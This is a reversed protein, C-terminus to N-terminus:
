FDSPLPRTNTTEDIYDGGWGTPIKNPFIGTSAPMYSGAGQNYRLNRIALSRGGLDFDDGGETNMATTGYITCDEIGSLESGEKTGDIDNNQPAIGGMSLPITVGPGAFQTNHFVNRRTPYGYAAGGWVGVRQDSRWETPASQSATAFEKGGLKLFTKHQSAATNTIKSYRVILDRYTGRINHEGTGSNHNLYGGYIGVSDITGIAIYNTSATSTNTEGTNWFVMGNPYRVQNSETENAAGPFYALDQSGGAANMTRPRGNVVYCHDFGVVSDMSVEDIDIDIMRIGAARNARYGYNEPQFSSVRPDAGSGAKGFIVNTLGNTPPRGWSRYDGGGDLTYYRNSSLTGWSGNSVPLNVTTLSTAASLVVSMSITAENGLSDKAKLRVTKTGTTTFVRYFIPPGTDQDKSYTPGSDFQTWTGGIAEGYDIRYGVNWFAGDEDDGDTAVSRTGTADFKVLFPVVGSISTVGDVVATSTLAGSSNVYEVTMAPTIDGSGAAAAYLMPRMMILPM